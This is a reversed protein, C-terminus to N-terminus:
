LILQVRDGTAFAVCRHDEDVLGELLFAIWAHNRHNTIAAFRGSGTIGLWTGGALLDKGALLKEPGPWCHAAQTPRQYYEDRNAAVLLPYSDHQRHALIILCM